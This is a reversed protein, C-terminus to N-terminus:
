EKIGNKKFMFPASMTTSRNTLFYSTGLGRGSGRARVWVGYLFMYMRSRISESWDHAFTTFIFVVKSSILERTWIRLEWPYGSNASVGRCNGCVGNRLKVIPFYQDHSSFCTSGNLPITLSIKALKSHSVYRGLLAPTVWPSRLTPLLVIAMRHKTNWSKTSERQLVHIM